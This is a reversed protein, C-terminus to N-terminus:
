TQRAGLTTEAFSRSQLPQVLNGTLPQLNVLSSTACSHAEEVIQLTAPPGNLGIEAAISRLSAFFCPLCVSRVHCASTDTCFRSEPSAPCPEGGFAALQSPQFYRLQAGKGCNTANCTTWDYWYGSCNVLQPLSFYKTLEQM